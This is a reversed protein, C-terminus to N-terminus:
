GFAYFLAKARDREDSKMEDCADEHERLTHAYEQKTIYGEAYYVRILDRTRLQQVEDMDVGSMIAKRLNLCAKAVDGQLFFLMTRDLFANVEGRNAALQFYELAKDTNRGIGDGRMYCTGLNYAATPSGAKSARHFWRIGKAKDQRVGQVGDFTIRGIYAIAQPRGNKALEMAEEFGCRDDPPQTSRCFPCTTAEDIPDNENGEGELSSIGQSVICGNCIVVGCCSRFTRERADIPMMIFCIPCEEREPRKWDKLPDETRGAAGAIADYHQDITYERRWYKVLKPDM